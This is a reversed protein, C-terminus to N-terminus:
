PRPENNFNYQRPSQGFDKLSEEWTPWALGPFLRRWRSSDLSADRPRPEAAPAQDRRIPAIVSPDARLLVALRRGMELRSMREPGGIHLIGTVDSWAAAIM